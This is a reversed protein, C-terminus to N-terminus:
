RELYSYVRALSSKGMYDPHRKTILAAALHRPRLRRELDRSALQPSSLIVLDM